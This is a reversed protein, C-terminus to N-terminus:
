VDTARCTRYAQEVKQELSLMQKRSIRRKGFRLSFIAVIQTITKDPSHITAVIRTPSRVQRGIRFFQSMDIGPRHSVDPLPYIATAITLMNM